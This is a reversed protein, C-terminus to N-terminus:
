EEVLEPQDFSTWGERSKFFLNNFDEQAESRCEFIGADGTYLNLYEPEGNTPAIKLLFVLCGKAYTTFLPKVEGESSDVTEPLHFVDVGIDRSILDDIEQIVLEVYSNTM